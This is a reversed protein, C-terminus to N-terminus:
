WWQSGSVATMSVRERSLPCSPYPLLFSLCSLPPPLHCLVLPFPLLYLSLYAICTPSVNFTSIPLYRHTTAPLLSCLVSSPILHAPLPLLLWTSVIVLPSQSTYQGFAPTLTVYRRCAGVLCKWVLLDYSQHSLMLLYYHAHRVSSLIVGCLGGSNNCNSKTDSLCVFFLMRKGSYALFNNNKFFM